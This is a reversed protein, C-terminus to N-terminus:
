GQDAFPDRRKEMLQMMAVTAPIKPAPPKWQPGDSRTFFRRLENADAMSRVEELDASFHEAFSRLGTSTDPYAPDVVPSVDVLQGTHLTRLPGGDSTLGWEDEMCRFAFSSKSVDGREVYEIVHQMSRPPEVEYLLGDRDVNMGLTRGEVTGLLQATDHNFRCIVGPWGNGKSRNFFAPDVQEVFGNLDRSYTNFKAAYGGIRRPAGDRSEEGGVLVVGVVSTTYRREMPRPDSRGGDDNSGGSSWNDPILSSLGLAKARKIIHARIADHSGGGRGVAHIANHLDEEDAIPYSPEGNANKMAQGKALMSKMQDANYKARAETYAMVNRGAKLEDAHQAPWIGLAAHHALNCYGKAGTIYKSLHAVCRDFDGPEGWRILAAGEGHVWYRHLAEENGGADAM